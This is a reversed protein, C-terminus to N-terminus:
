GSGARVMAAAVVPSRDQGSQGVTAAAQQAGTGPQVLGPQVLFRARVVGGPQVGQGVRRQRRQEPAVGPGAREAGPKAMDRERVPQDARQARMQKDLEPRMGADGVGREALRDALEAQGGAAVRDIAPGAVFVGAEIAVLDIVLQLAEVVGAEDGEGGQQPHAEVVRHIAEGIAADVQQM